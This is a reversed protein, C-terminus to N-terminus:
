NAGPKRLLVLYGAVPKGAELRVHIPRLLEVKLDFIQALHRLYQDSHTFRRTDKQMQFRDGPDAEVSFIMMGDPRLASVASQFFPTLDGMYVLVDAAVLLDYSQPSKQMAEVIDGVELRDYALRAQAKKTMEPSADVGVITRAMPRLLPGCLGTGCGLDLIDMLEPRDAGAVTDRILEPVHYDLKEVLHLDFNEAYKDFLGSISGPPLKAPPAVGSKTSLLVHLRQAEPSRALRAELKAVAESTSVGQAPAPQGQSLAMAIQAVERGETELGSRQLVAALAQHAPVFDSKMSIAARLLAEAEPLRGDEAEMMALVFAAQHSNPDIELARALCIRAPGRQGKRAWAAAFHLHPEATEPLKRVAEQLEVLAEDLQNSLLLALGLHQHVEGTDMGASRAQRFLEIARAIGQPSQMSLHGIGASFLVKPSPSLAVAKDFWQAAETNRRASLYAQALNHVFASDDPKAKTAQELMPIAENPRGSQLILVGLWHLADINGPENQLINRYTEEAQRYRGGRHHEQAIQFLDM